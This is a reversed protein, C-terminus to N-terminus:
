NSVTDLIGGGLVREKDYFVVSQGPAIPTPSKADVYWDKGKQFLQVKQKKQRYRFRAECDIGFNTLVNSYNIKTNSLTITYESVLSKEPGVILINKKVEKRLIYLPENKTKTQKVAFGHREGETYFWVGSHTGVVDGKENLVKGKKKKISLKLYKKLDLPGLFCIGQSDKKDAVPIGAKKAIQRVEKKTLNELPFIIQDLKDQPVAWLFYTQDKQKDKPEALWKQRIITNNIIDYYSSIPPQTKTRSVIKAYHGTAVFDANLKKAIHFLSEFKVFKNCLIDPNPTRGAKYERIMEDAVYKKYHKKADVIYLPIDLHAAVRMADRRDDNESCPFGEPHWTEIFIGVVDFGRKKLLYAAVSSDVGGSM